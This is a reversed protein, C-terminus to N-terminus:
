QILFTYLSGRLLVARNYQLKRIPERSVVSVHRVWMVLLEGLWGFSRSKSSLFCATVPHPSMLSTMHWPFSAEPNANSAYPESTM